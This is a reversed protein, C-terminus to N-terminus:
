AAKEARQITQARDPGTSILTIPVKLERELFSIYELLEAPMQKESLDTLPISWGKLTKYIPIIKENVVEYPMEQTVTGDMLQYHTCVKIEPFISLVDAKMM